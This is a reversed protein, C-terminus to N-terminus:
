ESYFDVEITEHIGRLRNLEQQRGIFFEHAKDVEEPSFEPALLCLGHEFAEVKSMIEKSLMPHHNQMQALDRLRDLNSKISQLVQKFEEVKNLYNEKKMGVVERVAFEYIAQRTEVLARCLELREEQDFYNASRGAHIERWHMGFQKYEQYKNQLNTSLHALLFSEGVQEEVLHLFESFAQSWPWIEYGIQIMKQELASLIVPELQINKLEKRILYVLDDPLLPPLNDVLHGFLQITSEM